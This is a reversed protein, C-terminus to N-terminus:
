DKHKQTHRIKRVEYIVLMRTAALTEDKWVLNKDYIAKQLARLACGYLISGQQLLGQNNNIRGVRTTSLAQISFSLAQGQDNLSLSQYLWSFSPEDRFHAIVPTYSELFSSTLKTRFASLPSIQMPIHSAIAM